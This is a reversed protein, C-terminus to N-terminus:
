PTCHGTLVAERLSGSREPVPWRSMRARRERLSRRSRERVVVQPWRPKAGPASMSRRRAWRSAARLIVASRAQGMRQTSMPGRGGAGGSAGLVLGM